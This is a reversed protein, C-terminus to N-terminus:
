LDFVVLRNRRLHLVDPFGGPFEASCASRSNGTTWDQRPRVPSRGHCLVARVSFLSRSSQSCHTSRKQSDDRGGVLLPVPPPQHFDRFNKPVSSASPIRRRAAARRLIVFSGAWTVAPLICASRNFHRRKPQSLIGPNRST